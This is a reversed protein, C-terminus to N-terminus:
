KDPRRVAALIEGIRNCPLSFHGEEGYFRAQCGPITRALYRCMAPPVVIDKEGHWLHVPVRIQELGLGWPRAYLLGDWAPGAAGRRLAEISSATLATRLEPNRLVAQDAEPLKVEVRRPIPQEGKGWIARLCLGALREAVWPTYRAMALLWRHTAVMGATAGPADLPGVACVLAAGTVRSPLRAACVAAYPGGGSIGLAAFQPVRLHEMLEIVDEPWDLIRRGVQFDSLGCGPRDPAILRVGAEACPRALAGPEFRSGPWGHCYLLPAGDLNGYEAFGLQRGDRLTLHQHLTDTGSLIVDRPFRWVGFGRALM